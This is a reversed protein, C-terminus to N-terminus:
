FSETPTPREEPETKGGADSSGPVNTKWGGRERKCDRLSRGKNERAAVVWQRRLEKRGPSTASRVLPMKFDADPTLM